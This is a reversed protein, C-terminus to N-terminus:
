KQPCFNANLRAGVLWNEGTIRLSVFFKMCKLRYNHYFSSNKDTKLIKIYLTM